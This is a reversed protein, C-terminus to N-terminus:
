PMMMLLMAYAHRVIAALRQRQLMYCYSDGSAPRPSFRLM